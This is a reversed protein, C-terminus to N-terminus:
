FSGGDIGRVSAVGTVGQLGLAKETEMKTETGTETEWMCVRVYAEACM